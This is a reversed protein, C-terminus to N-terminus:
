IASGGVAQLHYKPRVKPRPACQFHKHSACSLNLDGLIAINQEVLHLNLVRRRHHNSSSGCGHIILYSTPPSVDKGSRETGEFQIAELNNDLAFRATDPNTFEM